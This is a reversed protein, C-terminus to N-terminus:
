FIALWISVLLAQLFYIIQFMPIYRSLSQILIFRRFFFAVPLPGSKKSILTQIKCSEPLLIREELFTKLSEYNVFPIVAFKLFSM